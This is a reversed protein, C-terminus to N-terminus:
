TSAKIPSAEGFVYRWQGQHKIWVDAYRIRVDVVKQRTKYRVHLIASVVASDGNYVRVNVDEPENLEYMASRDAADSLFAARDYVKGTASVLEYDDSILKGLTAVDYNQTATQLTSNLATLQAIVPDSRGAQQASTATPIGLACLVLVARRFSRLQTIM